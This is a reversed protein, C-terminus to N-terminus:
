KKRKIVVRFWKDKGDVRLDKNNNGKRFRVLEFQNKNFKTLFTIPVGMEGFYDVPIEDVRNVNIADYNEYKPYEEESYKKYLILEDSQKSHSINTFWRGTSRKIEGNPRVFEDIVNSGLWINNNYIKAFVDKYTIATLPGIILFDKDYKFLQNIFERILSYPPNTVVIDVTKLIGICESSRFDGDGNLLTKKTKVVGDVKYMEFMYPPEYDNSIVDLLGRPEYHVAILKKLGLSNFKLSFYKWFNSKKSEPDDCNLYVIKDKFKGEFNILENEIDSIKTYYEDNGFKSKAATLRTNTTDAM